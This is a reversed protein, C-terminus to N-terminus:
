RFVTDAITQDSEFIRTEAIKGDRVKYVLVRQWDYPTGDRTASVNFIVVIRDNNTLISDIAPRFTGDTLEVQKSLFWQLRDKGHHEGAIQNNGAIHLVLDDAFVETAAAMDRRNVADFYTYILTENETSM